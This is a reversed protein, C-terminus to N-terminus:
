SEQSWGYHSRIEHYFYQGVSPASMLAEYKEVPVNEYVLTKGDNFRVHLRAVPMPEYGVADLYKSSVQTM